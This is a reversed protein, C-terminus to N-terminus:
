LAAGAVFLADVQAETLSLGAALATILPNNREVTSAFEWEIQAAQSMGSVGLNVADLLGAGLLALRAQRMTIQQPVQPAAPAPAVLVPAGNADAAIVLGTSQVAILAAHAEKTIAVADSPIASGHIEAIYFGKTSSSYFM